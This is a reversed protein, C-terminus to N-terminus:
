LFGPNHQCFSIAVRSERPFLIMVRSKPILFNGIWKRGGLAHLQKFIGLFSRIETLCIEWLLFCENALKSETWEALEGTSCSIFQYNMDRLCLSLSYELIKEISFLGMFFLRSKREVCGKYHVVLRFFRFYKDRKDTKIYGLATCFSDTLYLFLWDM